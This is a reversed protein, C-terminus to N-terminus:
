PLGSRLPLRWKQQTRWALVARQWCRDGPSWGPRAPSASHACAAPADAAAGRLVSPAGRWPRGWAQGGSAPGGSHPSRTKPCGGGWGRCSARAARAGCSPRLGECRHAPAPAATRRPAATGRAVCAPAAPPHQQPAAAPCCRLAHRAARHTACPPHPRPKGAPSRPAATPAAAAATATAAPPGAAVGGPSAAAPATAATDAAGASAGHHYGAATSPANFCPNGREPGVDTPGVQLAAGKAGHENEQKAARM